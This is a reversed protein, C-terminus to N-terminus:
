YTSIQKEFARFTIAEPHDPILERRRRILRNAGALVAIRSNVGGPKLSVSQALAPMALIVILAV